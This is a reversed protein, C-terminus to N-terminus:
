ASLLETARYGGDITILSGIVFSGAAPISASPEKRIAGAAPRGMKVDNRSRGGTTTALYLKGVDDAQPSEADFGIGDSSGTVTM